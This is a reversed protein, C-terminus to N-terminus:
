IRGGGLLTDYFAAPDGRVAHGRLKVKVRVPDSSALVLDGSMVLVQKSLRLYLAGHEDVISGLDSRVARREDEAMRAVLRGLAAEAQDGTLHHRVMVISNGFHGQAAEREEPVEGGLMGAVARRLKEEDETMQVFYSVEVSQVKSPM